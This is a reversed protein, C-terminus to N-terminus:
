VGPVGGATAEGDEPADLQVDELVSLEVQGVVHEGVRVIDYGGNVVPEILALLLQGAAEHAGRFVRPHVRDSVRRPAEHPLALGVGEVEVGQTSGARRRTAQELQVAVRLAHAERIR